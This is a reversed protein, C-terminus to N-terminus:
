GRKFQVSLKSGGVECETWTFNDREFKPPPPVKKDQIKTLVWRAISTPRGGGGSLKKELDFVADTGRNWLKLAKTDGYLKKLAEFSYVKNDDPNIRKKEDAYRFTLWCGGYPAKKPEVFSASFKISERPIPLAPPGALVKAVYAEIQQKAAPRQSLSSHVAEPLHMFLLTLNRYESPSASSHSNESGAVSGAQSATESGKSSDVRRVFEPNPRQVTVAQGKIKLPPMAKLVQPDEAQTRLMYIHELYQVDEVSKFMVLAYPKMEKGKKSKAPKPEYVMWEEIEPVAWQLGGDPQNAECFAKLGEAFAAQFDEESLESIPSAVGFQAKGGVFKYTHTDWFFEIVRDYAEKRLNYGMKRDRLMQRAVAANAATARGSSAGEAEAAAREAQEAAFRALEAAQFARQAAAKGSGSERALRSVESEEGAPGLSPFDKYMARFKKPQEGASGKEKAEAPPKSFLLPGRSIPDPLPVKEKQESPYGGASTSASSSALPMETHKSADSCAVYYSPEKVSDEPVTSMLKELKPFVQPPAPKPEAEALEQQPSPPPPVPAPAPAGREKAQLIARFLKKVHLAKMGVEEKDLDRLDERVEVLELLEELDVAGTADLITQAKGDFEKGVTRLFEALGEAM